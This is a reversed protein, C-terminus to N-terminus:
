SRAYWGDPGTSDLGKSAGIHDCYKGCNAFLPSCYYGPHLHLKYLVYRRWYREVVQLLDLTTQKYDPEMWPM